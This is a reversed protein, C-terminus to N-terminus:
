EPVTRLLNPADPDPAMQKGILAQKSPTTSGVPRRASRSAEGNREFDDFDNQIENPPLVAYFGRPIRM